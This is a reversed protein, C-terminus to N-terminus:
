AVGALKRKKEQRWNRKKESGDYKALMKQWKAASKALTRPEVELIFCVENITLGCLLYVLGSDLQRM